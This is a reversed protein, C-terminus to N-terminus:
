DLDARCVCYLAILQYVLCAVNYITCFKTRDSAIIVHRQERWTCRARWQDGHGDFRSLSTPCDTPLPTLPRRATLLTLGFGTLEILPECPELRFIRVLSLTM